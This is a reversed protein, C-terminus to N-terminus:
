ICLCGQIGPEYSYCWGDEYQQEQCCQTCNVEPESGSCWNTAECDARRLSSTAAWAERASLVILAAVALVLLRESWSVQRIANM